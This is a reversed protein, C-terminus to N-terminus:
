EDDQNLLERQKNKAGGKGEKKSKIIGAKRQKSLLAFPDRPRKPKITIKDNRKKSM